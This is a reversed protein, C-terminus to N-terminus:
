HLAPSASDSATFTMSNSVNYCSKLCTGVTRECTERRIAMTLRPDFERARMVFGFEIAVQGSDTDLVAGGIPDPSLVSKGGTLKGDGALAFATFVVRGVWIRHRSWGSRYGASERQGKVLGAGFQARFERLYFAQGGVIM